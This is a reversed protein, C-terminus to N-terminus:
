YLKPFSAAMDVSKLQVQEEPQVQPHQEPVLMWVGCCIAFVCPWGAIAYRVPVHAVKLSDM